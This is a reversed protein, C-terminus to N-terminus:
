DGSEAPAGVARRIAEESYPKQVISLKPWRELPVHSEAYGTVIITRVQLAMLREILADATDRGMKWDVFAVAPTERELFQLAPSVNTFIRVSPFGLDTLTAELSAALLPEDEVILAVGGKPM